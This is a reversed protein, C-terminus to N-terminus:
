DLFRIRYALPEVTATQLLYAFFLIIQDLSTDLMFFDPRPPWLSMLVPIRILGTVGLYEVVVPTIIFFHRCQHRLAKTHRRLWEMLPGEDVHPQLYHCGRWMALARTGLLRQCPLQATREATTM